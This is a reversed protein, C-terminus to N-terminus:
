LATPGDVRRPIRLTDEKGDGFRVNPSEKKEHHNWNEMHRVSM